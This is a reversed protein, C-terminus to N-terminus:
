WHMQNDFKKESWFGLIGCLVNSLTSKGSGSEGTIAVFEGRRFTLNIANLGVVVNTASTYYKSLNELSLVPQM